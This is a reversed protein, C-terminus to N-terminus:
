KHLERRSSEASRKLIFCVSNLCDVREAASRKSLFDHVARSCGDWTHYDDIIIVGGPAVRDYLNELCTMTSDYWDADLRLLAIPEGHRYTPITEHFWGAVLEFHPAKALNMAETATEKAARCNDYYTISERNQQWEIASLGDIEQAPPLGEFSDFLYYKRNPGLVCAIGAIMGGKWVGCEIVCGEIHSVRQALTLSTLFWERPVM